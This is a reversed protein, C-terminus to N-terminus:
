NLRFRGQVGYEVSLERTELGLESGRVSWRTADNSDYAGGGYLEFNGIGYLGSRGLGNYEGFKASSSNVTGYGIEASSTPRTLEAVAPDAADKDAAHAASTITIALLACRVALVSVRTAFCEHQIRM